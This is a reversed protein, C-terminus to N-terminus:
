HSQPYFLQMLVAAATIVIISVLTIIFSRKDMQMQKNKSISEIANRISTQIKLFTLNNKIVYDFAGNKLSDLAIEMKDQGSLIIVKMEPSEQKIKQLVSLGNMAFPYFSNLVYDLIVIDTKHKPAYRLFEEGSHFTNIKIKSQWKEQLYHKLSKLFLDDDDVVCVSLVDKTKM